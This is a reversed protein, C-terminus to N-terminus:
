DLWRMADTLNYAPYGNTSADEGNAIMELEARVYYIREGDWIWEEGLSDYLKVDVM